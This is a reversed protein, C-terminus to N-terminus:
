FDTPTLHYATMVEVWYVNRDRIIDEWRFRFQIVGYISGLSPWSNASLWCVSTRSRRLVSEDGILGAKIKKDEIIRRADSVHAVHYVETLTRCLRSDFRGSDPRPIQCAYGEWEEEAEDGQRRRNRAM